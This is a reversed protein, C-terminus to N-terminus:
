CVEAQVVYQGFLLVATLLYYGYNTETLYRALLDNIIQKKLYILYM